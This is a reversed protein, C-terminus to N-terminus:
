RSREAASRATLMDESVSFVHYAGYETPAAVLLAVSLFAVGSDGLKRVVAWAAVYFCVKLVVLLSIAATPLGLIRIFSSYVPSFVTYRDQSAASLFVDRALSSDIRALAQLAYLESDGILGRYRHTVCWLAVPLLTLAAGCAARHVIPLSARSDDNPGGPAPCETM